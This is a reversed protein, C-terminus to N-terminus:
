GIEANSLRGHSNDSENARVNYERASINEGLYNHYRCRTALEYFIARFHVGPWTVMTAFAAGADAVAIVAIHRYVAPNLGATVDAYSECASLRPRTTSRCRFIAVRANARIYSYICICAYM